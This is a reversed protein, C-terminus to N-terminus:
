TLQTRDLKATGEGARKANTSKRVGTRKAKSTPPRLQLAPSPLSVVGEVADVGVKV